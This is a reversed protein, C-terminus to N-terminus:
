RTTIWRLSKVAADLAARAVAYGADDSHISLIYVHDAHVILVAENIASKGDIHGTLKVRSATADPITVPGPDSDVADKIQNSKISDIYGSRVRGIPILNPIHWPLKPYTLNLVNQASAVSFIVQDGKEHQTWSRPYEFSVGATKNQYIESAPNTPASTPLVISKVPTPPQCATLITLMAAALLLSKVASVYLRRSSRDNTARADRGHRIQWGSGAVSSHPYVRIITALCSNSENKKDTHM